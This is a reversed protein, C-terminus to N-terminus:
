PHHPSVGDLGSREVVSTLARRLRAGGPEYRINRSPASCPVRTAHGGRGLLSGPLIGPVKHARQATSHYPSVGDLGSREVVSTLARRLRAGGPEYRINRSPASVRCALRARKGDLGPEGTLIRKSL